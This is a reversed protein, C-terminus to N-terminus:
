LLKYRAIGAAIAPGVKAFPQTSRKAWEVKAAAPSSYTYGLLSNVMKTMM